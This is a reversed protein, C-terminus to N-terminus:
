ISFVAHLDPLEEELLELCEDELDRDREDLGPDPIGM